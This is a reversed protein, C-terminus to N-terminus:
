IEISLDEIGFSINAGILHMEGRLPQRRVVTVQVHLFVLQLNPSRIVDICRRPVAIEHDRRDVAGFHPDRAPDIVAAHLCSCGKDDAADVGASGNM